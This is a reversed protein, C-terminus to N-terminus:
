RYGGKKKDNIKSNYDSLAKDKTFPGKMMSQGEVGVRGWRNWVHISGTKENLLMQVIYFKNNNEALDAKNM